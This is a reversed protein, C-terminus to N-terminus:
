LICYTEQSFGSHDKTPSRYMLSELLGCPVYNLGALSAIETVLSTAARMRPRDGDGLILLKLKTWESSWM